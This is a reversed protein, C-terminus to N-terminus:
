FLTLMSGQIVKIYESEKYMWARDYESGSFYESGKWVSKIYQKRYFVLYCQWIWFEPFIWFGTLYSHRLPNYSPIKQFTTQFGEFINAVIALRRLFDQTIPRSFRHIESGKWLLKM